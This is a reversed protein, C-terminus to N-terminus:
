IGVDLDLKSNMPHAPFMPSVSAGGGDLMVLLIWEWHGPALNWLVVESPEQGCGNPGQHQPHDM